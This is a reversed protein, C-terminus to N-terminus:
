SKAISSALFETLGVDGPRGRMWAKTSVFGQGAVAWSSRRTRGLACARLRALLLCADVTELHYAPGLVVFLFLCTIYVYIISYWKYTLLCVWLYSDVSIKILREMDWSFSKPFSFLFHSLVVWGLRQSRKRLFTVRALAPAGPAASSDHKQKFQKGKNQYSGM